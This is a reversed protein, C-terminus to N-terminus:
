RAGPISAIKKQASASLSQSDGVAVFSCGVPGDLGDAKAITYALFIFSHVVWVYM